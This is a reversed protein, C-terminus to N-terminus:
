FAGLDIDIEAALLRLPQNDTNRLDFARRRGSGLNSIKARRTNMNIQRYLSFNDYDDDSYRVYVNTDVKDGVLEFRSYRKSAMVGFDLLATRILVDIPHDNDAYTLPDFTYVAGTEIDLLLDGNASRAYYVGPFIGETYFTVEGGDNLVEDIPESPFYSFETAAYTEPDYRLNFSGNLELPLAGAMFFPDGDVQNHPFPMTVLISGDSQLEMSAVSLPDDATMTSWVTWDSTVEDLVLTLNLDVLTLVYFFHGNSKVIFAYVEELTSANLIRDIYQNSIYKPTYGEMKQISRGHQQANGMFYITNDAFALSGASACGITLLANLVKSLPSGTPNGADYFFETSYQKFAVVYNLQRAIAVGADAEANAVIVNTATWSTPAALDSGFIQGYSNMVFIYGDLYVVGYVTSAPYDPDNIHTITTGNYLYAIDNNKLFVQVPSSTTAPILTAQFPVCPVPPSPILAGPTSFNASYVGTQMTASGYGCGLYLTGGHLCNSPSFRAAWGPSSSALTWSLGDLSYYISNLPTPATAVTSTGGAVWLKGDAYWAAPSSRNGFAASSTLLTWNVGLDTSRYVTALAAGPVSTQGGCLYLATGAAILGPRSWTNPGVSTNQATWSSGNTSAWISTAGSTYSVVAIISTGVVAVADVQGTVGGTLNSTELTWTIGDPSSYVSRPTSTTMGFAYMKTGLVCAAQTDIMFSTSTWPTSITSWSAGNDISKYVSISTDSANKGGISYLNGGFSVLSGPSAGSGFTGSTPKPTTTKATWSAGTLAAPAGAVADGIIFLPTGTYDIAGQACGETFQQTITLGPRKVIMQGIPTDEKYCNKLMGDKSSTADRPALIQALPLRQTQMSM